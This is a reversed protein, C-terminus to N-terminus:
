VLGSPTTPTSQFRCFKASAQFPGGPPCPNATYRKLEPTTAIMAIEPHRSTPAIVAYKAVSEEGRTRVTTIRPKRTAVVRGRMMNSM